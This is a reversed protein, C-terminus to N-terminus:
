WPLEEQLPLLHPDVTCRGNEKYDCWNCEKYQGFNLINDAPPPAGTVVLSHYLSKALEEKRLLSRECQEIDEHLEFRVCRSLDLYYLEARYVGYLRMYCRLREVDWDNPTGRKELFFLSGSTKWEVIVEDNNDRRVTDMRGRFTLPTGMIAHTIPVENRKFYKQIARHMLNGRWLAAAKEITMPLPVRRRFWAKRTCGDLESFWMIEDVRDRFSGSEAIIGEKVEDPLNEWSM